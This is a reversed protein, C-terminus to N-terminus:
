TVPYISEGRPLSALIRDLPVEQLVTQQFQYIYMFLTITDGNVNTTRAQCVGFHPIPPPNWTILNTDDLANAFCQNAFAQMQPTSRPLFPLLTIRMEIGQSASSNRLFAYTVISQFRRDFTVSIDNLGGGADGASSIAVEAVSHPATWGDGGLPTYVSQGIVPQAPLELAVSVSM